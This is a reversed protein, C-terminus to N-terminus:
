KTYNEQRDMFFVSKIFNMKDLTTKITRITKLPIKSFVILAASVQVGGGLWKPCPALCLQTIFHLCVWSARMLSITRHESPFIIHIHPDPQQQVNGPIDSTSWVHHRYCCLPIHLPLRLSTKTVTYVSHLSLLLCVPPRYLVIHQM